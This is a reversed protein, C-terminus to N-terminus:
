KLPKVKIGYEILEDPESHGIRRVISQVKLGSKIKNEAIDVIELTNTTGDEFRIIGVNYPVQHEFGQPPSYITTFTVIRGTNGIQASLKASKRWINAPNKIM